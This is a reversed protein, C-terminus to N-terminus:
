EANAIGTLNGLLKLFPAGDKFEYLRRLCIVVGADNQLCWDVAREASERSASILIQTAPTIEDELRVVRWSEKFPILEYTGGGRSHEARFFSPKERNIGEIRSTYPEEEPRGTYSNLAARPM